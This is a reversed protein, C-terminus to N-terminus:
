GKRCILPIRELESRCLARSTCAIETQHRLRHEIWVRALHTHSNGGRLHQIGTGSIPSLFRSTTSASLTTLAVAKWGATAAELRDAGTWSCSGGDRSACEGGRRRHRMQMWRFRRRDRQWGCRGHEAHRGRRQRGHWGRWGDRLRWGAAGPRVAADVRVAARYAAAAVKIAERAKRAMAAAAEGSASTEARAVRVATGAGAKAGGMGANGAGGAGSGGTGGRGGGDVGGDTGSNGGTGGNGCQQIEPDVAGTKDLGLFPIVYQAKFLADSPGHDGGLSTFGDLVLYGCANQWQQRTAQHNGAASGHDDVDPEHEPGPRQDMGQHGRHFEQLQHDHRRRRSVAARAPSTGHVGPGDHARHRGMAARHAHRHRGRVRRGLQRRPGVRRAGCGAPMGAFASGAKFVDPYLALLLETM